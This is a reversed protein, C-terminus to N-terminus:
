RTQPARARRRAEPASPQPMRGHAESAAAAESQEALQASNLHHEMLEGARTPNRYRIARYIERHSDATEKLNVTHEVTERRTEYLAGVVAEMLAALIPNGSAHAIIRHFLVDHILYESPDDCTAYMEAVEEALAALEHEQGREAALAALSSELIIRAEFMQWSQFGHLKGMISLSAKGIEPPGDAVFTGVGHRIKLVGIAALCGIASRLTARSVNLKQALEREPPLRDGAVLARGEILKRIHEIVKEALYRGGNASQDDSMISSGESQEGLVLWVREVFRGDPEVDGLAPGDHDSGQTRWYIFRVTGCVVERSGRCGDSPPSIAKCTRRGAPWSGLVKPPKGSTKYSKVVPVIRSIRKKVVSQEM